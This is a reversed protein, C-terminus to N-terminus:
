TQTVASVVQDSGLWWSSKGHTFGGVARKFWEVGNMAVGVLQYFFGYPCYFANFLLAV